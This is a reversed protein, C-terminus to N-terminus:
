SRPDRVVGAFLITNAFRERIFFVFPRDVRYAMPMSTPVMGGVTVAAARTGRETV